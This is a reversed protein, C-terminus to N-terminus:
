FGKEKCVICSKQFSICIKIKKIFDINFKAFNDLIESGLPQDKVRIFIEKMSDEFELM